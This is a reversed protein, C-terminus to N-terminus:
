AKCFCNPCCAPKLCTFNLIFDFINNNSLCVLTSPYREQEMHEYVLGSLVNFRKRMDVPSLYFYYTHQTGLGLM